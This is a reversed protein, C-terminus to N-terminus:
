LVKQHFTSTVAVVERQPAMVRADVPDERQYTQGLATILATCCLQTYIAGNDIFAQYADTIINISPM